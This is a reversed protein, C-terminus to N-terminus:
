FFFSLAIVWYSTSTAMRPAPVEPIAAKRSTTFCVSRTAKISPPGSPVVQARTPQMGELNSIAAASAACSARWVSLNPTDVPSTVISPTATISRTRRSRSRNTPKTLSATSLKSSRWKIRCCARKMSSVVNSSASPLRRVARVTMMAVPDRGMTGGGNLVAPSRNITLSSTKSQCSRGREAATKPAPTM